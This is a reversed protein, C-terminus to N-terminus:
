LLALIFIANNVKGRQAKGPTGGSRYDPNFPCFIVSVM